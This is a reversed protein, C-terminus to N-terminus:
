QAQHALIREIQDATRDKVFGKIGLQTMIQSLEDATLEKLDDETYSM